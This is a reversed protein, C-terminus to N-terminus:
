GAASAMLGRKIGIIKNVDLKKYNTPMWAGSAICLVKMRRDYRLGTLLKPTILFYQSTHEKCAIEVMREHVMRENRPDMGQNIEDVVRFPAQALAQLSLLYFITSVSREGGSQRHADLIQLSEKERFKVKIQVSWLDFDEDKHVAVEGACGIQEFNYSFADSIEAILSDLRPEWIGRIKIIRRNTKELKDGVDDIKQQLKEIDKQRQEFQRVADPNDAHTFQLKVKEASIDNQLQEVTLDEALNAWGDRHKENEPDAQLAAVVDRARTAIAKFEALERHAENMRGREEDVQRTIGSNREQLGVVDSEAEISRIQAELLAEHCSRINSVLDKYELALKVKRVVAADHQANIKTMENQIDVFISDTARLADEARQIKGPLNRQENFAAQLEAKEEKLTAIEKQLQHGKERLEKITARLPLIQKKLDEFESEIESIKERIERKGSTDVPQDTWYRAANVQRSTSSTASPGYEERKQIRYSNSNTAWQTLKTKEKIFNYRDETIDQLAVASRDLGRSELFSLVPGPGDVLDIAWADLGLQQMQQESLLRSEARTGDAERITIDRFKGLQNSLKKSDSSNQTVFTLFDTRKLTAEVANAYRPDKLSCTILPPGYIEAQFEDRHEQVWKWAEATDRSEHALKSMQQGEQTDFAALSREAELKRNSVARGQDKIENERSALDEVEAKLDQLEHEKTRIRENWESPDFVIAEGHLKAKLDTVTKQLKGVKNKQENRAKKQAGMLGEKDKIDEDAKDLTQSKIDAQREAGDTAIKREKLIESVQRFYDQKANIRELTPQVEAELERVRQQAEKKRRSRTQHEIRADRYEVFPITRELYKIKEEIQLREQLKQVQLQLSQQRKEWNELTERDTALQIDLVKQSKRLGKLQEHMELMEPPAAARQTEELIAIPSLGAFTAVQEQPLFQCLNDIQISLDKVLKQVAKMSTKRGNLWWDRTSGVRMIRVRIVHNEPENPRKCLEIEIFAEGNSKDKVYEGFDKGRGLTSTPYGLGICIACVLSSKGTGNPGIVMNMSPGPFFEASEYTLFNKLKVRIIAGPQFNGLGPPDETEPSEASSDGHYGNTRARKSSQSPTSSQARRSNDGDDESEIDSRSRRRGKGASM